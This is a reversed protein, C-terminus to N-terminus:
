RKTFARIIWFYAYSVVFAVALVFASNADADTGSSERIPNLVWLLIITNSNLAVRNVSGGNYIGGGQNSTAYGRISLVSVAIFGAFTLLFLVTAWIDNYKPQDITFTQEFGIKEGNGTYPQQGYQPPQQPPPYQAQQQYQPQQQYQGQQHYQGQGEQYYADAAGGHQPQNYAM